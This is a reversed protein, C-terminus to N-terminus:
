IVFRLKNTARNREYESSGSPFGVQRYCGSVNFYFSVAVFQQGAFNTTYPHHLLLVISRLPM